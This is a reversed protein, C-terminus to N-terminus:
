FPSRVVNWWRFEKVYGTFKSESPKAETSFGFTIEKFKLIDATISSISKLGVSIREGNM